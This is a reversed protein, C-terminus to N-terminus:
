KKKRHHTISRTGKALHVNGSEDEHVVQWGDTILRDLQSDKAAQPEVKSKEVKLTAIVVIGELPSPTQVSFVVENPHVSLDLKQEVILRHTAICLAPVRDVPKIDIYIFSRGDALVKKWVEVEGAIRRGAYTAPEDTHVFINVVGGRINRAFQAFSLSRGDLDIATTKITSPIKLEVIGGSWLLTRTAPQPLPHATTALALQM